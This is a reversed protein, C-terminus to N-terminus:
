WRYKQKHKIIICLQEHQWKYEKYKM